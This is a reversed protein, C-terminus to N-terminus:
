EIKPIFKSIYKLLSTFALIANERELKYDSIDDKFQESLYNIIEILSIDGVIWVYAILGEYTDALDHADPRTKAYMRMQANKLANSLVYKNVKKGERIPKEPTNKFKTLYISKAVSYTFNVIGDGIKALGKDTGISKPNGKLDSILFDFSTNKDM